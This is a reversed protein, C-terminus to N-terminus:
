FRTCAKPIDGEGALRGNVLLKVHAGESILGKVGGKSEYELKVTAKGAPLLDGARITTREFSFFNMHYALKGDQVYLSWGTSGGGCCTTVGECGKEPVVIEATLAHSNPYVLPGVADPLRVDNGYYTWSTRPEGAVRNRADMRQSMRDDLPLVDYKKAEELFRAQLEKVKAPQKAALDDAQSFDDDVHYLEWADNDLGKSEAATIWPTGHRTNALLEDDHLGRNGM